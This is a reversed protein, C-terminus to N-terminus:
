KFGLRRPSAACPISSRGSKVESSWRTLSSITDDLADAVVDPDQRPGCLARCYVCGKATGKGAMNVPM